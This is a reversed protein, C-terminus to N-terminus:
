TRGEEREGCACYGDPEVEIAADWNHWQWSHCTADSERYYECDRCRVIEGTLQYGYIRSNEAGMRAVFEDAAGGDPLEVIYESM